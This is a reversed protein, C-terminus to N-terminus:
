DLLFLGLCFLRQDKMEGPLLTFMKLPFIHSKWWPADVSINTLTVKIWRTTGRTGERQQQEARVFANKGAAATFLQPMLHTEGCPSVNTGGAPAVRVKRSVRKGHFTGRACWLLALHMVIDRRRCAWRVVCWWYKHLPAFYIVFKKHHRNRGTDCRWREWAAEWARRGLDMWEGIPRRLLSAVLCGFTNM